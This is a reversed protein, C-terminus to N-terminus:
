WIQSLLEVSLACSFPAHAHHLTGSAGVPESYPDSPFRTPILSIQNMEDRLRLALVNDPNLDRSDWWNQRLISAM